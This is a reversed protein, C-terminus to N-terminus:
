IDKKQQKLLMSSMFTTICVLVIAVAAAKGILGNQANALRYVHLSLFETANGPGGQTLVFATDFLKIADIIRFLLALSLLKKIMPLTIYWLSQIPSAGDISASEYPENPISRLGAYVILIIFPTFQWVDVLLVSWFALQPSLWVVKEFGFLVLFWNLVGYETNLMLKWIQAAISPTMTLPIILIGIILPKLKFEFANLLLSLCFGLIMEISTAFIMFLMTIYISHYFDPDSASFLYVFNDFGVFDLRDFSWGLEYNTMSIIILFITPIVSLLIMVTMAPLIFKTHPNKIFYMKLRNRLTLLHIGM